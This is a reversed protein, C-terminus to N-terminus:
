RAYEWNRAKGEAMRELAQSLRRARTDDRKAEVVWEVYERRHSPPFSKFAALATPNRRLAAMFYAPVKLAPKPARHREVKVGAENLKAAAKVLRALAARRPLDSVSKLCGFQGMAKEDVKPLHETLLKAKWFGFTAHEKFAAMGCLPGKYDFHPFGWKITEAAGPCAAHVVSRIHNLIPRAFPKARAIYADVRADNAM